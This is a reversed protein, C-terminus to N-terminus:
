RGVVNGIADLRVQMGAEQMWGALVDVAARHAAGLYLRSLCNPADSFAALQDIRRAIEWGPRNNAHAM